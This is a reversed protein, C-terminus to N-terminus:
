VGPVESSIPPYLQHLWPLHGTDQSQALHLQPTAKDSAALKPISPGFDRLIPLNALARGLTPDLSQLSNPKARIIHLLLWQDWLTAFGETNALKQALSHLATLKRQQKLYNPRLKQWWRQKPPQYLALLFWFTAPSIVPQSVKQPDLIVRHRLFSTIRNSAQLQFNPETFAIHAATRWLQLTLQHLKLTAFSRYLQRICISQFGAHSLQGTCVAQSAAQYVGLTKHEALRLRQRFLMDQLKTKIAQKSGTVQQPAIPNGVNNYLELRGVVEALDPQTGELHAELLFLGLSRLGVAVAALPYREIQFIANDSAHSSQPMVGVISGEFKMDQHM